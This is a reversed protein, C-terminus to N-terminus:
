LPPTDLSSEGLELQERLSDIEEQLHDQNDEIKKAAKRDKAEMAHTQAFHLRQPRM